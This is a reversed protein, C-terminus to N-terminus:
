GQKLAARSRESSDAGTTRGGEENTKCDTIVLTCGCVCYLPACTCRSEFLGQQTHAAGRMVLVLQENHEAVRCGLLSQVALLESVLVEIDLSFAM